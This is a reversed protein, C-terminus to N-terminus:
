LQFLVQGLPVGIVCIVLLLVIAFTFGWMYGYKKSVWPHGHFLPSQAAGAPTGLAPTIALMIGLMLVIPNGGMNMLLTAGLPIFLAGIVLNHMVQTLLGLIVVLICIFVIPSMNQLVPTITQVVTSTIGCEEATIASAVPMTAVLLWTVDWNVGDKSFERLNGLSEGKQTQIIAVLVLIISIVGLLGLQNLFQTIWWTTPMFSPLIMALIFIVTIVLGFKQYSSLKSGRYEAFHDGDKLPSVDLRFIFRATLLIVLLSALQLVFMWAFYEAFGITVDITNTLFGMYMLATAKFPFLIAGMSAAFLIAGIMFSVFSSGKEYGCKEAIKIVVDCYIFFVLFTNSLGAIICASALLIYIMLWPRGVMFKMSFVKGALADGVKFYELVSAFVFCVLIMVVTSNGFGSSFAESVGMLGSFGFVLIGLFSPWILGCFIWGYMMGIFVGLVKMGIPTVNGFTPLFGIGIMLVICIISHLYTKANKTM